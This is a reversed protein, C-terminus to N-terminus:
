VERNTPLTLHTYSVANVSGGNPGALQRNIIDATCFDRSKLTQPVRVSKMSHLFCPDLVLDSLTTVALGTLYHPMGIPSSYQALLHCSQHLSTLFDKGSRSIDEYERQLLIQMQFTSPCRPCPGHQFLQADCIQPPKGRDLGM